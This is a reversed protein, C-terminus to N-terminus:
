RGERLCLFHWFPVGESIRVEDFTDRLSLIERRSVRQEIRTFFRDYVDQELRQTCHGRYFEWLPVRHGAHFLEAVNGLAVLPRYVGAAIAWSFARRFRRSRIRCLVGRAATVAALLARFHAPRNDLAYYLYLLQRPALPALRRVAELAPTPLHHLVGLSFTFDFSDAAFPLRELDGQFFLARPCDALNRRAVFIAESFDVLVLEGCVDKLFHSWRGMGCGLDAVRQGRLSDLPVLDFYQRFEAAHEALIEPYAQWEAGFTDRIDVAVPRTDTERVGGIDTELTLQIVDRLIPYRRRGVRLTDAEIELDRTGFLRELAARKDAYYAVGTEASPASGTNM